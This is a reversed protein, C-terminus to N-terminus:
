PPIATHNLQLAQIGGKSDSDVRRCDTLDATWEELTLLHTSLTLDSSLLPPVFRLGEDTWFVWGANVFLSLFQLFYLDYFFYVTPTSLPYSQWSQRADFILIM